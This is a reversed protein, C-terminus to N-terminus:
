RGLLEQVIELNKKFIVGFEVSVSERLMTTYKVAVKEQQNLRVLDEFNECNMFMTSKQEGYLTKDPDPDV